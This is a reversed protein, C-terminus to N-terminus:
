KQINIEADVMHKMIPDNYGKIMKLAFSSGKSDKALYVNAAAGEGIEGKIRYEKGSIKLMSNLM